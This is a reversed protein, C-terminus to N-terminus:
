KRYHIIFKEGMLEKRQILCCLVINNILTQPNPEKLILILIQIGDIGILIPPDKMCMFTFLEEKKGKTSSEIDKKFALITSHNFVYGVYAVSNGLSHIAVSHYVFLLM